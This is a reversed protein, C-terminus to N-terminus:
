ETGTGANGPPAAPAPADTKPSLPAKSPTKDTEPRLPSLLLEEDFGPPPPPPRDGFGGPPPPPRHGFGDPPPPPPGGGFDGPPPPPPGFREMAKRRAELRKVLATFKEQQAPTLVTKIDRNNQEIVERVKPEQDRRIKALADATGLVIVRVKDQQEGSLDLDDAMRRLVMEAFHRPDGHLLALRGREALYRAGFFGMVVGSAFLVLGALVKTATSNM